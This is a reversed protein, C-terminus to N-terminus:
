RFDQIHHHLAVQGIGLKMSSTWIGHFLVQVGLICPFQCDAESLNVPPCHVVLGVM